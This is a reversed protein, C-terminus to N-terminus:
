EKVEVLGMNIFGARPSEAVTNIFRRGSIMLETQIETSISLAEPLDFGRIHCYIGEPKWIGILMPVLPFKGQAGLKNATKANLSPHYAVVTSSFGDRDMSGDENLDIGNANPITNAITADNGYVWVLSQKGNCLNTAKMFRFLINTQISTANYVKFRLAFGTAPNGTFALSFSYAGAAAGSFLSFTQGLATTSYPGYVTFVNVNSAMSFFFPVDCIWLFRHTSGDRAEYVADVGCDDHLFDAITQNVFDVKNTYMSATNTMGFSFPRAAASGVAPLTGSFARIVQM